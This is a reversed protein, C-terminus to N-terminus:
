ARAYMSRGIFTKYLNGLIADGTYFGSLVRAEIM